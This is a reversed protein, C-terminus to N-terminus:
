EICWRKIVSGSDLQGHKRIWRCASNYMKLVWEGIEPIIDPYRSDAFYTDLYLRGNSPITGTYYLDRNWEICSSSISRVQWLRPGTEGGFQNSTACLIPITRDDIILWTPAQSTRKLTKRDWNEPYVSDVVVAHPFRNSLYDM